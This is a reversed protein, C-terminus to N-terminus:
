LIRLGKQKSTSKWKEKKGKRLIFENYIFRIFYDFFFDISIKIIVIGLIMGFFGLVTVSQRNFLLCMYYYIACFGIWFVFTLGNVVYVNKRAVKAFTKLLVSVLGLVLGAWLFKVFLLVNVNQFFM